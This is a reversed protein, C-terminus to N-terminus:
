DELENPRLLIFEKYSPIFVEIYGDTRHWNHIWCIEGNYKQYSPKNTRVTYIYM